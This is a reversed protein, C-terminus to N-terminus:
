APFEDGFADVDQFSVVAGAFAPRAFELHEDTAAFVGDAEAFLGCAIDDPPQIVKELEAPGTGLRALVEIEDFSDVGLVGALKIEGGRLSGDPVQVLRHDDLVFHVDGVQQGAFLLGAAIMVAVVDVFLATVPNDIVVEVPGFEVDKAAVDAEFEARPFPLEIQQFVEAPQPADHRM